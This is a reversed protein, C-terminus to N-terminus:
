PVDRAVTYFTELAESFGTVSCVCHLVCLPEGGM